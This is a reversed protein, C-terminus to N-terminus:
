WDAVRGVALGWAQKGQKFDRCFPLALNGANAQSTPGTSHCMMFDRVREPSLGELLCKRPIEQTGPAM